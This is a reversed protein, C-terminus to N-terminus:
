PLTEGGRRDREGNIQRQPDGRRYDVKSLVDQITGKHMALIRRRIIRRGCTLTATDGVKANKWPGEAKRVEVDKKGSEVSDFYDKKLMFLVLECNEWAGIHHQTRNLRKVQPESLKAPSPTGM